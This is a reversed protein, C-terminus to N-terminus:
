FHFIIGVGSKSEWTKAVPFLNFPSTFHIRRYELGVEGFASFRENLSHQVGFSASSPYSWNVTSGSPLGTNTVKTRSYSFRPTVYAATSEWKKMYLLVAFGTEFTHSSSSASSVPTENSTTAFSIDPRIAVRDTVNWIFGVSAPYAMVLGTQGKQQAQASTAIFLLIAIISLFLLVTSKKM